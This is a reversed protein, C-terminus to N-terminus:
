SASRPPSSISIRRGPRRLGPHPESSLPLSRVQQPWRALPAPAWWNREGLLEMTAPVLLMRVLFADALIGIALGLGITKIIPDPALAFSAFVSIMILAAAVVVRAGFGFGTVVAARHEVGHSREEHMRSVLFLEYDMALGFGFARATM